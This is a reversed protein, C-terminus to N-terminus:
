NDDHQKGMSQSFIFETFALTTAQLLQETHELREELNPETIVDPAIFEEEDEEPEFEDVEFMNSKALAIVAKDIEWEEMIEDRSAGIIKDGTTIHELDFIEEDDSVSTIIFHGNKLDGNMMVRVIDDIDYIM